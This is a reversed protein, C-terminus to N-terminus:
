FILCCDILVRVPFDLVWVGRKCPITDFERVWSNKAVAAADSHRLDVVVVVLERAPGSDAPGGKEVRGARFEGRGRAGDDGWM